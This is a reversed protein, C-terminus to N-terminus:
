HATILFTSANPLGYLMFRHLSSPPRLVQWVSQSTGKREQAVVAACTCDRRKNGRESYHHGRLRELTNDAHQQTAVPRVLISHCLSVVLQRYFERQTLKRTVSTHRSDITTGLVFLPSSYIMSDTSEILLSSRSTGNVCYMVFAQIARALYM